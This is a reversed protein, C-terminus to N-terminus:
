KKARPGPAPTLPAEQMPAANVKVDLLEVEFILPAGGPIIPPRGSDGYALDSPCVLKAKGGIKMLGIGESWCPIVKGLPFEAPQGRKISSDFEKGDAFTGTYHVKVIDTAKPQAGTGAKIEKYILGTATKQAGKETSAKELFPKALAKQKEGARAMRAKALEGIKQMNADSDEALKKGAAADSMGQQVYKLEEPSLDFVSLQKNINVGLAYFAKQEVTKPEKSCAPIFLLAVFVILLLKRMVIREKRILKLFPDKGWSL